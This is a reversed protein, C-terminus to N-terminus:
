RARFRQLFQARREVAPSFIVIPRMSMASYKKTFVFGALLLLIAAVISVSSKSNSSSQASGTPVDTQGSAYAPNRKLGKDQKALVGSAAFLVAVITLGLISLLFKYNLWNYEFM